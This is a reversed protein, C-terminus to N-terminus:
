RPVLLPVPGSLAMRGNIETEVLVIGPLAFSVSVGGIREFAPLGTFAMGGAEIRYLGDIGVGWLVGGSTALGYFPVTEDPEPVKPDFQWGSDITYPKYYRISVQDGCLKALRGHPMMHILGVAVLLCGPKGPEPAIGNVPDCASNLPGDCIDAGRHEVPSVTGTARDIRVLGGGWEGANRGVFLAHEDGYTSVILGRGIPASLPLSHEGADSVTILRRNTLLDFRGGACSLAALADGQTPASWATQWGSPSPRLATWRTADGTLLVPSDGDRCLDMGPSPAAVEALTRTAPDIAMLTGGDTLLWLRDRAFVARKIMRREGSGASSDDPAAPKRTQPAAPLAFRSAPIPAESLAVLDGASFLHLPAGTGVLAATPDNPDPEFSGLADAIADYRRYAQGLRALAPDHSVVLYPEQPTGNIPPYAYAIGTRGNVSVEGRSSPVTRSPPRAQHPRRARAAVVDDLRTVLPGGPGPTVVYVIGGLSLLYYRPGVSVRLDGNAAIEFRTEFTGRAPRYTATLDQAGAPVSLLAAVIAALRPFMM